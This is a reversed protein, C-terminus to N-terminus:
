LKTQLHPLQRGHIIREWLVEKQEMGFQLIKWLSDVADPGYSQMYSIHMQVAGQFILDYEEKPITEGGFYGELFSQALDFRYNMEETEHNFDVFQMIFPWGLDLYRSGIGADDLDIFVVEGNKRIMSNHPGIDTHVFCQDLLAFSPLKDLVAYFDNAFEKETFWEYFREKSQNLPSPTDYCQLLHMKRVAQGLLFEDEATEEMHRGDVFELLYFSYDYQRIYYDGTIAPYLKPALGKENGLFLHAMVNSQITTEPVSIPFGKLIYDQTNTKISFILRESEENYREIIEACDMKWHTLLSYLQNKELMSKEKYRIM